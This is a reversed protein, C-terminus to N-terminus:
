RVMHSELFAHIDSLRVYIKKGFQSFPIARSDRYSQWTAPCVGLMKRGEESPIWTSRAIEENKKNILERLGEIEARIGDLASNDIMVFKIPSQTEM